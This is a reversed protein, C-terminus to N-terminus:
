MWTEAISPSDQETRGLNVLGHPLSERAAALTDHLACDKDPRVDGDAFVRHIRVVFHAPHDTPHDYIVHFVLADGQTSM